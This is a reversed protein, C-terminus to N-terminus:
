AKQLIKDGRFRYMEIIRNKQVELHDVLAEQYTMNESDATTQVIDVFYKINLSITNNTYLGTRNESNRTIDEGRQDVGTIEEVIIEEAPVTINLSVYCAGTKNSCDGLTVDGSKDFSYEAGFTESTYNIAEIDTQTLKTDSVGIIGATVISSILFIGVFLVLLKKQM